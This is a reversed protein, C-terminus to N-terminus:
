LPLRDNFYIAFQLKAQSWFPTALGWTMQANRIALFILKLAANDDPLAGRTKIAKRIQRNLSEIANTTYIIRRIEAPYALFPIIENWRTRWASVVMPYRAGWRTEFADLADKATEISSATYITRLSDCVSKREKWPVFRTSSRIMHVICTQFITKPFAAEVAEPIGKLGDACLIFIDEVGRQRLETLISLWFKAGETQQIWLGLVDKRGDSDVGVVSYVAKKRVSGGDRISVMLADLYVVLYVSELPRSQWSKVEDVVADTVHSILEASVDVRYIEQLHARIDRTSMGRSYMSLIKDDFGNFHREHKGVIAPEFTGDRDRPVEIEVEGSGTRVMKTSTGNRRDTQGAPAADGSEYGLHHSMEANMARTILRGILQNMVGDPGCLDEPKEYGVLLQDVLEDPIKPAKKKTRSPLPITKESENENPM